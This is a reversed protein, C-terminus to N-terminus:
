AVDDDLRKAVDAYALARSTLHWRGCSCRYARVPMKERPPGPDNRISALALEAAIRDGWSSKASTPCPRAHQRRKSM